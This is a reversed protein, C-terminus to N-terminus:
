NVWLVTFFGLYVALPLIMQGFQSISLLFPAVNQIQHLAHNLNSQSLCYFKFHYRMRRAQAFDM